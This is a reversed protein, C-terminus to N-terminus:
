AKAERHAVRRRKIYSYGLGILSGLTFYFIGGYVSTFFTEYLLFFSDADLKANAVFWISLRRVADVQWTMNVFSTEWFNLTSDWFNILYYLNSLSGNTLHASNPNQLFILHLMLSLNLNIALYIALFRSGLRLPKWRSNM